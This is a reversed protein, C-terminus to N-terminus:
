MVDQIFEPKGKKLFDKITDDLEPTEADTELAKSFESVGGIKWKKIGKTAVRQRNIYESHISAEKDLESLSLADGTISKYEKKLYSVIEALREDVDNQIEHPKMRNLMNETHYNVILTDGQIRVGFGDMVRRDTIPTAEERSLGGVERDSGDFANSAAQQIGKVIEMIDAM